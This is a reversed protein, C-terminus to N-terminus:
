PHHTHENQEQKVPSTFLAAEAARRKVLGELVKGGAKTWKSFELAAEAFKGENVLERLTSHLFSGIGENFAFDLLADFQNQTLVVRVGINVAHEATAMDVRLREDAQQQTIVQRPKVNTTSGYGITWVGTSDQYARLRLGEFSKTLRLGTESIQM